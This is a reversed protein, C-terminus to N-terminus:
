KFEAIVKNALDNFVKIFGYSEFPDKSIYVTPLALSNHKVRKNSGASVDAAAVALCLRLLKKKKDAPSKDLGVSTLYKNFTDLYNPIKKKDFEIKANKNEDESINANNRYQYNVKGFEWHMYAALAVEKIDVEPLLALIIKQVDIEGDKQGEAKCKNFKKKGLIYDGSWDPHTLDGKGDYKRNDYMDFICDGGKGIDHFFACVTAMDVDVDTMIDNKANAWEQIQLATWQSHEILDGGHSQCLTDAAPKRDKGSTNCDVDTFGTAENLFKKYDDQKIPEINNKYPTAKYKALENKLTQLDVIETSEKPGSLLQKIDLKNKSKNKKKIRRSSILTLSVLLTTIILLAFTSKFNTLKTQTVQYM